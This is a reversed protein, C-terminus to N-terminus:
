NFCAEIADLVLKADKEFEPTEDGTAHGGVALFIVYDGKTYIGGANLRDYSGMVQYWSFTDLQAQRYKEVAAQVKELKDPAAQIMVLADSNTMMMPINGAYDLYDEADLEFMDKLSDASLAMPMPVLVAEDGYVDTYAAEAAAYVDTLKGEKLTNPVPTPAPTETAVPTPTPTQAACGALWVLALSLAAIRGIIKKM